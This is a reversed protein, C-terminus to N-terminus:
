LFCEMVDPMVREGQGHNDTGEGWFIGQGAQRKEPIGHHAIPIVPHQVGM